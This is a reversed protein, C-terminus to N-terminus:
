TSRYRLRECLNDSQLLNSQQAPVSYLDGKETMNSCTYRTVCPVVLDSKIGLAMQFREMGWLFTMVDTYM